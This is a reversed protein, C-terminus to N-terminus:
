AAPVTGSAAEAEEKAIAQIGRLIWLGPKSTLADVTWGHSDVCSEICVGAIKSRSLGLKEAWADIRQVYKEDIYVTVPLVGDRVAM